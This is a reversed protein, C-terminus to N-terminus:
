CGHTPHASTEWPRPPKGASLSSAMPASTNGCKPLWPPCCHFSFPWLFQLLTYTTQCRGAWIPWYHLLRLYIPASTHPGTIEQTINSPVNWGIQKWASVCHQYCGSKIHAWNKEERGGQASSGEQWRVHHAARPVTSSKSPSGASTECTQKNKLELFLTPVNNFIFPKSLFRKLRRKVKFTFYIMADSMCIYIKKRKKRKRELVVILNNVSDHHASFWCGLLSLTEFWLHWFLARKRM